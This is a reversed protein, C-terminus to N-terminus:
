LMCCTDSASVIKKIELLIYKLNKIAKDHIRWTKSGFIKEMDRLDCNDYYYLLLIECEKEPLKEIAKILIPNYKGDSKLINIIYNEDTLNDNCFIDSSSVTASKIKNKESIIDIIENYEKLTIGMYSSIAKDKEMFRFKIELIEELIERVEEIKKSEIIGIAFKPLYNKKIKIVSVFKIFDYIRKTIKNIAYKEFKIENNPNYENIAELFGIRGFNRM